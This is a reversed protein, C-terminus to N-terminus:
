TYRHKESPKFIGDFISLQYRLTRRFSFVGLLFTGDSEKGALIVLSITDLFFESVKAAM